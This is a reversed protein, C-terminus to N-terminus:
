YSKAPINWINLQDVLGEAKEHLQPGFTVTM